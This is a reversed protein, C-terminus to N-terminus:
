KLEEENNEKPFIIKAMNKLSDVEFPDLCGDADPGLNICFRGNLTSVNKYLDALQDGTKYHKKHQQKNRGWSLGITNIHEWPVTPAIKPLTRDGYVRFSSYTGLWNPNEKMKRIECSGGVRDNIQANPNAKTIYNLCEDIARNALQSKFMWDGDFWWLDPNYRDCLEKVQPMMTNYCYDNNCNNEFEWWSYYIGFNLGHDKAAKKFDELIDRESHYTTTKTPWLCYGDHHKSTIIVTEAGCSKALSMWVNPDWKEPQFQYHFDSYSATGYKTQHYSQTEDNQRNGKKGKLRKLYWEAGNQIKRKKALVVDDFTPVSYLGWHFIISFHTHNSAAAM